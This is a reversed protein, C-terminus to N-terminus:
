IKGILMVIGGVAAAVLLYLATAASRKTYVTRWPKGYPVGEMGEIRWIKSHGVWLLVVGEEAGVLQILHHYDKVGSSVAEQLASLENKLTVVEPKKHPSVKLVTIEKEKCM